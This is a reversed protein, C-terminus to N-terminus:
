RSATGAARSEASVRTLQSVEVAHAYFRVREMEAIQEPTEMESEMPSLVVGNQGDVDEKQKKKGNKAKSGTTEKGKGKKSKKVKVVGDIEDAPTEQPPTTFWADLNLDEPIPVSTQANLAVPNLEHSAFLPRILYLSKPFRPEASAIPDFSSSAEAFPNDPKPRYANLDARIFTFLQFTNAAQSLHMMFVCESVPSLQSVREQVEIHPSSVFDGVRTIIM